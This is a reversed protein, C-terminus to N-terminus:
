LQWEHDHNAGGYAQGSKHTDIAQYAHGDPTQSALSQKLGDKFRKLVDNLRELYSIQLFSRPWRRWELFFNSVILIFFPRLSLIRSPLSTIHSDKSCLARTFRELNWDWLPILLALRYIYMRHLVLSRLRMRDSVRFGIWSFLWFWKEWDSGYM